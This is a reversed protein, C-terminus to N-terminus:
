LEARKEVKFDGEDEEECRREKAEEEVVDQVVTESQLPVSM